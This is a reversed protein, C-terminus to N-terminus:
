GPRRAQDIAEELYRAAIGLAVAQEQDNRDQADYGSATHAVARNAYDPDIGIAARYEIIARQFQGLGAYAMVRNSFASTYERNVTIIM